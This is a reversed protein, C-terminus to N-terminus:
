QFGGGLFTVDLSSEAGVVSGGQELRDTFCRQVQARVFSPVEMGLSEVMSVRGKSYELVSSESFSSEPISSEPCSSWILGDKDTVNQDRM